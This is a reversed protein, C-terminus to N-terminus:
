ASMSLLHANGFLPCLGEDAFLKYMDAPACRTCPIPVTQWALVKAAPGPKSITMLFDSCTRLHDPDSGNCLM